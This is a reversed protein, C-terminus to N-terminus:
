WPHRLSDRDRELNETAASGFVLTGSRKVVTPAAVAFTAVRRSYSLKKM